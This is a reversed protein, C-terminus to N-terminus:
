IDVAGRSLWESIMQAPTCQGSRYDALLAAITMSVAKKERVDLIRIKLICLASAACM